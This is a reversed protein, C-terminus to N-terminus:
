ISANIIDGENVLQKVLTRTKYTQENWWREFFAMEVYSFRRSPNKELEQVVTDLIYQVGAKQINNRATLFFSFM